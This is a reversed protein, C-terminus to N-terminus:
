IVKDEDGNRYKIDNLLRKRVSEFGESLIKQLQQNHRKIVPVLDDQGTKYAREICINVNTDFIHPVANPDIELIRRISIDSTHTGDVIVDHGRSLLAQIMVQKIGFVMPEAKSNYRQGHLALRIDDSCSIVRPLNDSNTLDVDRVWKTCFTSKGSRACGITFHLEPKRM